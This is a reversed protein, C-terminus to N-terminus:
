SEPSEDDGVEEILEDWQSVRPDRRGYIEMLQQRIWDRDLATGQVRVVQEVDAIDKRRFFMMKFVVLSEADWIMIRHMGLEVQRRRRRADEYFPIIPLFVDVRVGHFMVRCFGHERLSDLADSSVFECGIQNLLWLCESHQDPSLYLTVDVDITGRPAGWFGLAIAGGLAYDQGHADLATALQQAAAAADVPPQDDAM